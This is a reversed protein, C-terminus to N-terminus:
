CRIKVEKFFATYFFTQNSFFLKEAEEALSTTKLDDGDILKNSRPVLMNWYALRAGGNAAETLAAYLNRYGAESMYEFIDSLNFCDFKSEPNEKLYDELSTNVLEIKNINEKIKGYNKEQLWFPLVERYEGLLIWHLYPNGAPDNLVLAQHISRELFEPLSRSVYKFFERDRGLLGMVQNSFFVKLMLKWAFTNWRNKYFLDREEKSKPKLLEEVTEKSHIIPLIKKRFTAFYREFKGAGALGDEVLTINNRFFEHASPPLEPELVEYLALRKEPRAPLFGLLTMLDERRLNKIGAIKLASLALQAPNLDLAVVQEPAKALLSLSNDGASAISLCRDGPKIELANLVVETDEWCQSYRIYSFDARSEVESKIRTKQM